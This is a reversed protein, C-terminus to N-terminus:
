LLHPNTKPGEKKAQKSPVRQVSATYEPACKNYRKRYM